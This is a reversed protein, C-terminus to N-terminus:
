AYNEYNGRARTLLKPNTIVNVELLREALQEGFIVPQLLAQVAQKEEPLLLCCQPLICSHGAVLNPM